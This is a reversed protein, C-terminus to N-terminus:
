SIPLHICCICLLELVQFFSFFFILSHICLLFSHLQAHYGFGTIQVTPVSLCSSLLTSTLRPYITFVRDWVFLSTIIGTSVTLFQPLPFFSVPPPPLNLSLINSVNYSAKHIYIGYHAGVWCLLLPFFNFFRNFTYAVWASACFDFLWM